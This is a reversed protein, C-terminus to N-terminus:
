TLRQKYLAKVFLTTDQAHLNKLPFYSMSFKCDNKYLQLFHYKKPM